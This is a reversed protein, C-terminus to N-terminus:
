NSLPIIFGFCSGKGVTSEIILRGGHHQIFENCLTLGLGSGKEGHTGPTSFLTNAQKIKEIEEPPIGKGTDKIEVRFEDNAVFAKITINGKFPTFKIANSLLNRVLTRM